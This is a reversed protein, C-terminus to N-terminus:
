AVKFLADALQRTKGDTTVYNGTLIISNGNASQSSAQFNLNLKEIGTGSLSTLENQGIKRDGNLDRYVKLANFIKDKNDIVNDGNDDYKKLEEFGNAEGNQDGFLEKGNDITGNENEDYVLLATDGQVWATKDLSGDGDIDFIAGDDASTLNIGSGNLDLVLPDVATTQSNQSIQTTQSTQVNQSIQLSENNQNLEASEGNVTVETAVLRGEIKSFEIKVKSESQSANTNGNTSPMGNSGRTGSLFNQFHEKLRNYEEDDSAIMRLIMDLEYELKPDNIGYSPAAAEGDGANNLTITMSGDSSSTKRLQEITSKIQAAPSFEVLDDEIDNGKSNAAGSSGSNLNSDSRIQTMSFNLRSSSNYTFISNDM